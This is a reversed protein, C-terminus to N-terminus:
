ARQRARESATQPGLKQTAKSSSDIVELIAERTDGSNAVPPLFDM